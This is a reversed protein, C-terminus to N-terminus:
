TAEAYEERHICGPTRSQWSQWTLLDAVLMNIYEVDEWQDGVVSLMVLLCPELM